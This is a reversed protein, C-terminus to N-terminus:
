KKKTNSFRWLTLSNRDKILLQDKLLVPAAWTPNDAVKYKALIETKAGDAKLVQLEGDDILALVHGPISLFTVNDGTRGPGKWLIKGNKTDICFMEGLGYHSFGYLRNDNILATSM